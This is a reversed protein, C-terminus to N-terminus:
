IKKLMQKVLQILELIILWTEITLISSNVQNFKNSDIIALIKKFKNKDFWDTTNKDEELSKRKQNKQQNKLKLMKLQM